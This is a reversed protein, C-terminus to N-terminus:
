SACSSVSPRTPRVGAQGNLTSAVTSTLSAYASEESGSAAVIRLASEQSPLVEVAKQVALRFQAPDDLGYTSSGNPVRKSYSLILHDNPVFLPTALASVYVRDRQFGSGDAHVGLIFWDLPTRYAVKGRFAWKSASDLVPLVAKRWQSTTIVSWSHWTPTGALANLVLHM